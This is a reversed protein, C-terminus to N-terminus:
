YNLWLNKKKRGDYSPIEMMSSVIFGCRVWMRAMPNIIRNESTAQECLDWDEDTVM